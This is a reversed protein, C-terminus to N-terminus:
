ANNVFEIFKMVRLELSNNNFLKLYGNLKNINVKELFSDKNIRLEYFSNENDIGPNNYFFDLVAKEPDAIKFKQEGVPILRYGFFLDSKVSAYSFQGVDNKLTYTRRSTISTVTYVSEPIIGYFSLAMELSVYSPSYIKNAILSLVVEDVKTDSFIFYGKSIKKIYGKDQWESLRQAHFDPYLKLIDSVSFLVFDKFNEKLEIYKM